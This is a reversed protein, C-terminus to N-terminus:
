PNIELFYIRMANNEPVLVFQQVLTKNKYQVQYNLIVKHKSNKIKHELGVIKAREMGGNTVDISDVMRFFGASDIEDLFATSFITNLSDYDRHAMKSFYRSVTQQAQEMKENKLSCGSWVVAAGTALFTVIFFARPKRM